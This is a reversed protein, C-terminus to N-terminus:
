TPSLSRVAQEVKQSYHVFVIVGAAFLTTAGLTIKSATSMVFYLSLEFSNSSHSTRNSTFPLILFALPSLKPWMEQCCGGGFVADGIQSLSLKLWSGIVAIM